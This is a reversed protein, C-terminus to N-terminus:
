YNKADDEGHKKGCCNVRRRREPYNPQEDYNFSSEKLRGSLGDELSAGEDFEDYPDKMEYMAIPRDRM